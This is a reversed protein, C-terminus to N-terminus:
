PVVALGAITFVAAMVLGVIVGHVALSSGEERDGAGLARAVASGVSTGMAANAMQQMLMVVPFVLSLGALAAPSVRRIFYADISPNVAGRTLNILVNPAALRFLTRIVPGELLLRTRAGVAAPVATRDDIIAQEAMVRDRRRLRARRRRQTPRLGIVAR